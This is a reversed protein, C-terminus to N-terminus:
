FRIGAQLSFELTPDTTFKEDTKHGDRILRYKSWTNVAVGASFFLNESFNWTGTIGVPVRQTYYACDKGLDPSLTERSDEVAFADAEYSVFFDVLFENKGGVDWTLTAGNLLRLNLNPTLRVDFSFLPFVYWRNREHRYVAGAGLMVATTESFYQKCGLGLFGSLGDSLSTKDEAALSLSMTGVWAFGNDPNIFEQYTMARLSDTHEFPVKSGGSFRYDTRRYDFNSLSIRTKEPSVYRWSFGTGYTSSAMKGGTSLAAPLSQGYYAYFPTILNQNVRVGARAPTYVKGIEDEAVSFSEAVTENASGYGAFLTGASIGTSLLTASLFLRKFGRM